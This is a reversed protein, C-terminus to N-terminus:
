RKMDEGLMFAHPADGMRLRYVQLNELVRQVYNRTEAFPLQEIWDVPDVGSRPDGYTGLWQKVRAPGANYAAIGLVYSGGFADILKSLYAQGLTMNYAQDTTLRESSFALALQKAVEQATSPKLQMLGRADSRSIAAKDFGSEQRVVALVLPQEIGDPRGGRLVPYSADLLLVGQTAARKAATVAVDLVGMQQAAGAVLTLETPTTASANMQALFPKAFESEGIEALMRAARVFESLEFREAEAAPPQPPPPFDPRSATGLRAAALQGYYTLRHEAAAAFWRRAQERDGEAEAARGAWYAGRALSIPSKVSAHLQTFHAYATQPEALRRLAILGALFEADAREAGTEGLARSQVLTYALRPNGADILKQALLDRESWWLAPRVLSPPPSALIAAAAELRDKRRNWKARDLVLGPDSQLAPPVRQAVSEADDQVAAFALRAEAVLRPAEAVRALQRRAIAAQGSWLLRDLRAAHDEERLLDAHRALLQAEDDLGLDGNVWLDRVLAAAADREGAGTLIAAFRLKGKVTVPRHRRFWPGLVGDPVDDSAMEARQRLTAALPWDPNAEAFAALDAFSARDDRLLVLWQLVKAPLRESAQAAVQQAAAFDRARLAKYAVRYADQDAPTLVAAAAPAACLILLAACCARLSSLPLVRVNGNLRYPLGWSPGDM